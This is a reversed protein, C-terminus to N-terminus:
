KVPSGFVAFGIIVFLLLLLIDAGWYRFTRAPPEAVRYSWAGFIAWLFLILWYWIQLQM